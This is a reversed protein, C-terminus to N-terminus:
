PLEVTFTTGHGPSSEVTVHGGHARVIEKVIYLGLGVGGWANGAADGRRFPEFIHEQLRREIPDGANHVTIVREAGRRRWELEVPQEDPGYRLANTLLNTLVQQIRDPDWEGRGDGEHRYEIRRGPNAALVEEISERCIADLDAPRRGVPIGHGLRARSYDLLDNILRAMRAAGGTVRELARRQRDSLKGERLVVAASASIATLPTRLDHGVIGLLHGQVEQSRRRETVDRLHASLGDPHPFARVEFWRDDPTPAEFTVSRGEATARRLEEHMSGHALWPCREWLLAGMLTTRDDGTLAEMGHNVYVFRWARDVAFFADSITELVAASRAFTERARNEEEFQRRRLQARLRARIVEPGSAASVYDDAGANIAQTVLDADDRMGVLLVPAGQWSPRASIEACLSLAAALAPAADVLVADIAKAALVDMADDPTAATVVAHGDKRLRDTVDRLPSEPPRVVLIRKPALIGARTDRSVPTADRLLADLRALVVDNGRTKRVFADAGAELAGLEGVSDAATLLICPTTRLGSDGRVQRIFAAGDMGPMVGDVIIASPRRRAAVRLGEEGSTATAVEYGAAQLEARLDERATLSDDVVLVTRRGAAREEEAASEVLQRARAVVHAPDYPKGVYADARTGRTGLRERVELENALLMVRTGQLAPTRRVHELLDLGDGDPLLLDLVVLDFRERDLAERGGALDARLTTAFGRSTFADSLDMRVTLSDDVVLVRPGNM